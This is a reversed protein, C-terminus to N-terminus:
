WKMCRYSAFQGIGYTMLFSIFRDIRQEPTQSGEGIAFTVSTDGEQIQKIAAADVDIGDINLQGMAKKGQLFEGCVMDVAIQYLGDPIESVNCDNKITNEVKDILFNLLWDDADVVTYGFSELRKKVDDIIM